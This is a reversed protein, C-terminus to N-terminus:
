QVPIRVERGPIFAATLRLAAMGPVTGDPVRIDVRYTDTTGPWGIKNLVDAAKGNLTVELPSNVEQTPNDPFLAGPTLGPRTPGLGTATVILTEGPRSPKAATVPSFDAHFVAPGGGAIVIEPSSVPILTVMFHARGGGNTRRNAPDEEMSAVRIPGPVQSLTGRAGLYAGTGGTVALNSTLEQASGPPASGGAFGTSMISGVPTGDAQLIELHIDTTLGRGLDGIAQGPMPSPVVMMFQGRGVWSGRAPRGNVSVIDAIAILPMFNRLNVNVINPATALKSRDALNDTYIVGNEWEVDLTAFPPTQALAQGLAVICFAATIIRDWTKTMINEKEEWCCGFAQAAGRATVRGLM